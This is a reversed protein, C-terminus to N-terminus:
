IQSQVKHSTRISGQYTEFFKTNLNNLSIEHIDHLFSPNKSILNNKEKELNFSRVTLTENRDKNLAVDETRSIIKKEPRSFKSNKNHMIDHIEETKKIIKIPSLQVRFINQSINNKDSNNGLNRETLIKKDSIIKSQRNMEKLDIMNELKRKRFKSLSPSLNAEIHNNSLKKGDLSRMSSPNYDSSQKKELEEINEDQIIANQGIIKIIKICNSINKIEVLNEIKENKTCESINTSFESDTNSAQKRKSENHNKKRYKEFELTQSITSEKEVSSQLIKKFNKKKKFISKRPFENTQVKCGEKDNLQLYTTLLINKYNTEMINKCSDKTINPFLLPRMSEEKSNQSVDKLKFIQSLNENHNIHEKPSNLSPFNGIQSQVGVKLSQAKILNQTIKPTISDLTENLSNIEKSLPIIELLNPSFYNHSQLQSLKPILVKKKSTMRVVKQYENMNLKDYNDNKKNDDNLTENLNQTYVKRSHIKDKLNNEQLHIPDDTKLYDNSIDPFQPSISSATIQKKKFRLHSLAKEDIKNKSLFKNKIDLIEFTQNGYYKEEDKQNSEQNKLYGKDIKSSIKPEYSNRFNKLVKLSLFAQFIEDHDM